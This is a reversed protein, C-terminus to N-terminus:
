FSTTIMLQFVNSNLGGDEERQMWRMYGTEMDIHKNYRYGIAVYPRNQDLLSSNVNEKHQVNLFIEDQIKAYLGKSFDANALLPIQVSILARLRQSFEYKEEKVFRQELRGRLNFEMREAEFNYTYQEYVRHERTHKEGTDEKDWDNKNAYGLAIAQKKSFNYNVATRWLRTNLTMFQDGTRWQVDALVDVKSSVKQTHSLFLWGTHPTQQALVPTIFVLFIFLLYLNLKQM